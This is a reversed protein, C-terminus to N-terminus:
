KSLQTHTRTHCIAWRCTDTSIQRQKVSYILFRSSLQESLLIASPKHQCTWQASSNKRKWRLQYYCYGRYHKHHQCATCAFTNFTLLSNLSNAQHLLVIADNKYKIALADGAFTLVPKKFGMEALISCHLGIPSQIETGLAFKTTIAVPTPGCCKVHNWQILWGQFGGPLCRRDIQWVLRTIPLKTCIKPLLNQANPPRFWFDLFFVTKYLAM